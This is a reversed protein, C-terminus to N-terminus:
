FWELGDRGALARLHSVLDGICADVRIAEPKERSQLTSGHIQLEAALIALEAVAERNPNGKLEAALADLRHLLTSWTEENAADVSAGAASPARKESVISEGEVHPVGNTVEAGHHDQGSEAVLAGLEADLEPCVELARDIFWSTWGVSSMAFIAHGVKIRLDADLTSWRSLDAVVRPWLMFLGLPPSKIIPRVAAELRKRISPWESCALNLAAEDLVINLCDPEYSKLLQLDIALAYTQAGASGKPETLERVVAWFNGSRCGPNLYHTLITREAKPAERSVGALARSGVRVGDQLKRRRDRNLGAYRQMLAIAAFTKGDLALLSRPLGEVVRHVYAEEQEEM